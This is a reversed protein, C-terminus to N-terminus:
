LDPLFGDHRNYRMLNCVVLYYYLIILYNIDKSDM